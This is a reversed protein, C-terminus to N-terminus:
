KEGIKANLKDFVPEGVGVPCNQILCSIIGGLSDGENKAKFIEQIMREATEPNPCRVPNSEILSLDIQDYPIELAIKHIQKVYATVSIKQINLILKAIAGAAVWGATIRASSRGGGRHDRIGYKQQYTYDAHSPRYVEKLSHYDDSNSDKNQILLMIPAGTSVGEFVGSIIELKDEENRATTLESQGPRRKNLQHQIFDINIELLPPCGDIVVGVAKGHSEGFSTIRFINGLTNM